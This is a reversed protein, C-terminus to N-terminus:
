DTRVDGEWVATAPSKKYVVGGAGELVLAEGVAEGPDEEDRLVSIVAVGVM